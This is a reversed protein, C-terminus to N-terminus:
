HHFVHSCYVYEVYLSGRIDQTVQFLRITFYVHLYSLTIEIVCVLFSFADFTLKQNLIGFYFTCNYSTISVDKPELPFAQNECISCLSVPYFKICDKILYEALPLIPPKVQFPPESFHSMFDSNSRIAVSM